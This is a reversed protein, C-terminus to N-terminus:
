YKRCHIQTLSMKSKLFVHRVEQILFQVSLDFGWLGLRSLIVGTVMGTTSATAQLHPSLMLSVAVALCIVQWNIFWLGARVHGIKRMFIPTVYTASLESIAAFVKMASIQVPSFDVALLYTTMQTGFSLVTLYLMSLAISPLIVPSNYYKVWPALWYRVFDSLHQSRSAGPSVHEHEQEVGSHGIGQM